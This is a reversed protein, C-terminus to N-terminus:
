PAAPAHGCLLLLVGELALARNMHLRADRRLRRLAGLGASAGEQWPRPLAPGTGHLQAASAGHRRALVDRLQVELLALTAAFTAPEASLEAAVRCCAGADATTPDLLSLLSSWAAPAAAVWIAEGRWPAVLRALEPAMDDAVLTEWSAAEAHLRLCVCRSRLTPLLHALRALQLVFMCSGPPEEVVKLLANQAAANLSDAAEIQVVRRPALQPRTSLRALLQRIAAVAIIGREDPGLVILDPHTGLRRRRCSPCSLCADGANPTLCLSSAVLADGLAAVPALPGGVLVTAHHLRGAALEQPLQQCAGLQQAAWHSLSSM